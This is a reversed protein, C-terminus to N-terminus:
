RGSVKMFGAARCGDRKATFRLKRAAEQQLKSTIFPASPLKRRVKRMRDASPKLPAKRWRRLNASRRGM